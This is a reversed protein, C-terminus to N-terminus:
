FGGQTTPAPTRWVLWQPEAGLRRLTISRESEVVDEFHAYALQPDVPWSGDGRDPFCAFSAIGALPEGRGARAELGAVYAELAAEYAELSLIPSVLVNEGRAIARRVAPMLEATGPIEIGPLADRPVTLGM